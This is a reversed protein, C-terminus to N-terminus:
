RDTSASAHSLRQSSCIAVPLILWTIECVNRALTQWRKKRKGSKKRRKQQRRWFPALPKAKKLDTGAKPRKKEDFIRKEPNSIRGSTIKKSVSIEKSTNGNENEIKSYKPLERQWRKKKRAKTRLQKRNIENRRCHPSTITEALVGKAPCVDMVVM